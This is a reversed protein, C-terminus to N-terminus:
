RSTLTSYASEVCRGVKGTHGQESRRVSTSRQPVAGGDPVPWPPAFLAQVVRLRQRASVAVLGSLLGMSLAACFAATAPVDGFRSLVQVTVVVAPYHVVFLVISHRGLYRLPTSSPSASVAHALFALVVIAALVGLGYEAQYRAAEGLRAGVVALGAAGVAAALLVVPRALWRGAVEAHRTVMDGLLFFGFLFFFREPRTADAFLTSAGLTALILLATPVRRLGLALVYFALLFSIFWLPSPALVVYRLMQEPGFGGAYAWPRVIVVIYIVTWVLYPWAINRLKGEAYRRAGKALSPALLQGSLFVLTPIRFTSFVENVSTVASPLDAFSEATVVAAHNVVVLLIALGRLVDMWLLRDPQPPQSGVSTARPFTPVTVARIRSAGAADM